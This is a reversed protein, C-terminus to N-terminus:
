VVFSRLMGKPMELAWPVAVGGLARLTEARYTYHALIELPTKLRNKMHQISLVGPKPLIISWVSNQSKVVEPYRISCNGAWLHECICSLALRRFVYGCWIWGSKVSVLISLDKLLRKMLSTWKMDFHSSVTCYMYYYICMHLAHLLIYMYVIYTIIYAYTCHIYYHIIHTILYIHHYIKCNYLTNNFIHLLIPFLWFYEGM